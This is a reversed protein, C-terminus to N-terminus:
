FYEVSLFCGRSSGSSMQPNHGPFSYNADRNDPNNMSSRGSGFFTKMQRADVPTWKKSLSWSQKGGPAQIAREELAQFIGNVTLGDRPVSFRLVLKIEPEDM